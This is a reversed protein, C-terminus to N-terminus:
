CTWVKLLLFHVENEVQVQNYFKCVQEERKINYLKAIRSALSYSSLRIKAMAQRNGFEKLNPILKKKRDPNEKVVMWLDCSHLPSPM